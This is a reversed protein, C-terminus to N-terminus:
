ISILPFRLPFIFVSFAFLLYVSFAGCFCPARPSIRRLIEVPATGNRCLNGRQHLNPLQERVMFREKGASEVRLTMGAGRESGNRLFGPNWALWFGLLLTISNSGAKGGFIRSSVAQWVRLRAGFIV